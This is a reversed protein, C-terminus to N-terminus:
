DTIAKDALINRMVPAYWQFFFRYEVPVGPMYTLARQLAASGTLNAKFIAPLQDAFDGAFYIRKAENPPTFYVVAPFSDPLGRVRLPERTEEKIPLEYHALVQAEDSVTLIEIWYLYPIERAAGDLLKASSDHRIVPWPASFDDQTIIVLDTYWNRDTADERIFVMGPGKLNWELGYIRSYLEKIWYAAEDLESYYRTLWGSYHVAFVNELINVAEPELYTPYGLINHEGIIVNEPNQAFLAIVEAEEASIGGYILEIDQHVYPLNIEYTELGEPYNYIGYTDALYLINVESLHDTTLVEKRNDKPHFGLYDQDFQLFNSDPGVMRYHNAIWFIACHERYTEDPVTKDVVLMNIVTTPTLHWAFFYAVILISITLLLHWRKM